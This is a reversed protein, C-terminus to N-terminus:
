EKNARLWQDVTQLAIGKKENLTKEKGWAVGKGEAFVVRYKKIGNDPDERLTDKLYPVTWEERKVEFGYVGEVVKAVEKYSITDGATYVVEDRLEPEDFVVVATMKGIDEVHTVTVTNEWSGLARVTRRDKTVVGFVEEFLFSMFLGTSVIVWNTTSQNRLLARVELQETFLDQDSGHGIVDYDVGFQWPIYRKVKAALVAQALKTQLGPGGVMGTCGIITDFPKFLTALETENSSVIDGSLFEIGLLKLHNLEAKRSLNSTNITSNRLLVTINSSSGKAHSALNELVATGLEGAGIVLISQVLSM